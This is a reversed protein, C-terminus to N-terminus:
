TSEDELVDQTSPSSDTFYYAIVSGVYDFCNSPDVLLETGYRDLDGPIVRPRVPNDFSLM